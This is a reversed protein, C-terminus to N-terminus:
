AAAIADSRVIGVAAAIKFAEAPIFAAAGAMFAEVPGLGLILMLGAIGFAYIVVTGLVMAGVLVPVSTDRYDGLSGRHVVLGVVAAAVPYSWLYGLTPEALLVGLGSAGGAFVPAGVAGAALYLLLAAAGWLPGLMIGALFVGLVQLTIPAPSLPNPFSVFAFAGMLAAFLVARALNGVAEDGVLEVSDTSTEM